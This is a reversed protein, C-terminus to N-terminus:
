EVGVDGFTLYALLRGSVIAGLWCAISLLALAKAQATTDGSADVGAGGVTLVRSKILVGITLGAAIAALKARFLNSHFDKKADISFLMVGSVANTWFGIWVVTMLRRLGTLPLDKGFGLVRLDIIVLLGVLTALGIAHLTIVYPYATQQVWNAFASDQLAKLTQDIM